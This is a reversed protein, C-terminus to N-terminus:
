NDRLCKRCYLYLSRELIYDQSDTGRNLGKIKSYSRKEDPKETNDVAWGEWSSSGLDGRSRYGKAREGGDRRRASLEQPQLKCTM